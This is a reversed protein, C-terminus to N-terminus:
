HGTILLVKCLIMSHNAVLEEDGEAVEGTMPGVRDDVDDPKGDPQGCANEDEQPDDILHRKVPKMRIGIVDVPDHDVVRVRVAPDFRM